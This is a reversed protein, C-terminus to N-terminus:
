GDVEFRESLGAIIVLAVLVFNVLLQIVCFYCNINWFLLNDIMVKSCLKSVKFLKMFKVGLKPPLPICCLKISPPQV